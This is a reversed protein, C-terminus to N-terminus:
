PANMIETLISDDTLYLGTGDVKMLLQSPTVRYFDIVREHLASKLTVSAAPGKETDPVSSGAPGLIKMGQLRAMWGAFADADVAGDNSTVTLAYLKEGNEDYRDHGLADKEEIFALAYNRKEPGAAATVQTLAYIPVQFPVTLVAKGTDPVKLAETFFYSVTVVQDRYLAYRSTEDCSGGILLLEHRAPLEMKVTSGDSVPATVVSQAILVDITLYPETLGYAELDADNAEAIYRGFSLQSLNKLYGGSFTGSVPYDFPRTMQWGMDTYRMSFSYAGSLSVSDVIDPNISIEPAPFLMGRSVSFASYMDTSGAYVAPDDDFMFYYYPIGGRIQSGILLTHIKKDATIMVARCRYPDFGYLKLDTREKATDIVTKEARILRINNMIGRTVSDKLERDPEDSLVLKGGNVSLTYENGDGPDVTVSAIDDAEATFLVRVDESATHVEPLKRQPLSRRILYWASILFLLALALLAATKLIKGSLRGTM